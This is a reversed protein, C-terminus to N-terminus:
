TEVEVDNAMFSLHTEADREPIDVTFELAIDVNGGSYIAASDESSLVISIMTSSVTNEELIIGVTIPYPVGGDVSITGSGYIEMPLKGHNDASVTLYLTPGDIEASSVSVEIGYGERAYGIYTSISILLIAVALAGVALFLWHLAQRLSRVRFKPMAM